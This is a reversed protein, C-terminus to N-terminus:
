AKTLANTKVNIVKLILPAIIASLDTTYTYSLSWLTQKINPLYKFSIPRFCLRKSSKYQKMSEVDIQFSQYIFYYYILWIKYDM